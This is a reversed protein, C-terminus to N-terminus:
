VGALGGARGGSCAYGIVVDPSLKNLMLVICSQSFSSDWQPSGKEQHRRSPSLKTADMQKGATFHRMPSLSECCCLVESLHFVYLNLSCSPAQITLQTLGTSLTYHMPCCQLCLVGRLAHWMIHLIGFLRCVTSQNIHTVNWVRQLSQGVDCAHTRVAPRITTVCNNQKRHTPHLPTYGRECVHPWLNAAM